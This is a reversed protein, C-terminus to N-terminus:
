EPVRGGLRHRTAHYGGSKMRNVMKQFEVYSQSNVDRKMAFSATFLGHSGLVLRVNERAACFDEVREADVADKADAIARHMKVLQGYSENRRWRM